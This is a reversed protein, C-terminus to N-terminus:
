YEELPLLLHNNCYLSSYNVLYSCMYLKYVTINLVSIYVVIYCVPYEDYRSGMSYDPYDIRKDTDAVDESEAVSGMVVM